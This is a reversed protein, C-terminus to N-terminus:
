GVARSTGFMEDLTVPDLKRDSMLARLQDFLQLVTPHNAHGLIISGAKVWKHAEALLQEPTELTADGFSANWMLIETYGLSGAVGDTHANHKGYPPRFWPRSTIGFTRQIWDENREIESKITADRLSLLNPHTWTHNAIQVQGAEILGKLKDAHRDWIQHFTGNPSFTIHVGTKDAFDVYGAVCEVCYGDDITLAVQSTLKPAHSVIRAPGPRASPIPPLPKAPKLTTAPGSPLTSTAPRTLPPATGPPGAVQSDSQCGALTGVLGAALLAVFDRRDIAARLRCSHSGM